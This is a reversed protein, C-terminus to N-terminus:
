GARIRLEFACGQDDTMAADVTAGWDDAIAAMLAAAEIVGPAGRGNDSIAVVVRGDHPDLSTKVVVASGAVAHASEACLMMARAVILALAGRELIASPVPALDVVLEIADGIRHGALHVGTEVAEHVSEPSPPRDLTMLVGRLDDIRRAALTADMYSSALDQRLANLARWPYPVPGTTTAIHRDILDVSLALRDSASRMPSALDVALDAAVVGALYQRAAHRDAGPGIGITVAPISRLRPSSSSSSDSM